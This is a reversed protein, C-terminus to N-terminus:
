HNFTSCSCQLLHSCSQQISVIKGTGVPTFTAANFTLLITPVIFSATLGDGIFVAYHGYLSGDISDFITFNKVANPLAMAIDGFAVRVICRSWIFLPHHM